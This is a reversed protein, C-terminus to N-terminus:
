LSFRFLLGADDSVLMESLQTPTTAGMRGGMRRRFSGATYPMTTDTAAGHEALTPKLLMPRANSLAVIPGWDNHNQQKEVKVTCQHLNKELIPTLLGLLISLHSRKIWM